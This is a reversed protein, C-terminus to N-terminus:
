QMEGAQTLNPYNQQRLVEYLLVTAANSLNLSREESCMPIRVCRDPYQLRFEEPLGKSEKGFFLFCDDQYAVDSHNRPAKTTALWLNPNPHQVFFDELSEYVHLDVRAWYDMASRKVYKDGLDFGLPKILHLSAGTAVCSRGINGTNGPIEPELLVINVMVHNVERKTAIIDQILPSNLQKKAFLM